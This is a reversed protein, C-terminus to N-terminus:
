NIAGVDIEVLVNFNHTAEAEAILLKVGTDEYSGPGYWDVVVGDIGRSVMDQVQRHVQAPDQSSYGISIHSGSGWWPEVHAFIRTTAGPYLLSRIPLKSVNGAGLNGNIQTTFSSAASTNNATQQSLTTTSPLQAQAVLTILLLATPFVLKRM